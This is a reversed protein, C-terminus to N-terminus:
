SFRIEAYAAIQVLIDALEGDIAGADNIASAAMIKERYTDGIHITRDAVAKIAEEIQPIDVIRSRDGPDENDRVQCSIYDDGDRIIHSVAAWYSIGGELATCLIDRLFQRRAIATFIEKEFIETIDTSVWQNAKAWLGWVWAGDSDFGARGILQYTRGSLTVAQGTFPDFSQIATSARGERDDQNHGVLHRAGDTTQWVSWSVLHIVPQEEVSPTKWISGKVIEEYANPKKKDM